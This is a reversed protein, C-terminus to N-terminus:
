FDFVEDIIEQDDIDFDGYFQDKAHERVIDFIWQDMSVPERGTKKATKKYEQYWVSILKLLEKNFDINM